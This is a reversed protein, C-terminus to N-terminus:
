FIGYDSVCYIRAPLRGRLEEEVKGRNDIEGDVFSVLM